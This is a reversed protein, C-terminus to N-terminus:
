QKRHCNCCLVECKMIEDLILKWSHLDADRLWFIKREIHHFDLVRHDDERCDRCGIQVKVNKVFNLKTERDYSSSRIQFRLSKLEKKHKAKLKEIKQLVDYRNEKLLEMSSM